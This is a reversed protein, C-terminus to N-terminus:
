ANFGSMTRALGDVMFAMLGDVCKEILAPLEAAEVDTFPSLVYDAQKGKAFDSGVGFRLRPYEATGLLAQLSKLGNHGGDSGAPRMRLKGFPLALDDTVVMMQPLPIKNKDLHFKVAKGSLNMYTSPKLILVPKGRFKAEALDGLRDPLFVAELRQALRDAVMFGINHRTEEYEAGINGLGVFLFKMATKYNAEKYDNRQLERTIKPDRELTSVKIFKFTMRAFFIGKDL